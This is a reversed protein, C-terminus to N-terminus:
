KWSQARKRALFMVMRPFFTPKRQRAEVEAMISDTTNTRPQMYGGRPSLIHPNDGAGPRDHLVSIEALGARPSGQGAHWQRLEREASLKAFESEEAELTAAELADRRQQTRRDQQALMELSRVEADKAEKILKVAEMVRRGAVEETEQARRSLEGYEEATLTVGGAQKSEGRVQQLQLQQLLAGASAAAVEESTTAAVIERAVAELRAEVAAVAAKAVIADERARAVEERASRAKAKAEEVERRAEGVQEDAMRKTEAAAALESTARSLEEQLYPISASSLGERRRLAALEAKERDLEDRMSAAAVRLCKAEDRAREVSAKVGELEKRMKELQMATPSSTVLLEASLSGIVQSAAEAKMEVDCAAMLQARLKKAELQADELEMQWQAKDQELALALRLRKEEAVVHAGHASEVDAKLAALEAALDEVAKGAERSEAAADRARATAAGAEAAAAARVKELSEVEARAAQLEAQLDRLRRGALDSEQLAQAEEIQSRKLSLRLKDAERTTTGLERLAQARGAQAATSRRQYEAAEEQVKDVEDQHAQKRQKEANWDLIGGFKTVAGKVSDIPAATDVHSKPDGILEVFRSAIESAKYSSSNHQQQPTEDQEIWQQQSTSPLLPADSPGQLNAEEM